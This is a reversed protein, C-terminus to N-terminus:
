GKCWVYTKNKSEGVRLGTVICDSIYEDEYENDTIILTKIRPFWEEKHREKDETHELVVCCDSYQSEVHFVEDM